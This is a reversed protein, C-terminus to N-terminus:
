SACRGCLRVDVTEAGNGDDHAEYFVREGIKTANDCRDCFGPSSAIFEGIM